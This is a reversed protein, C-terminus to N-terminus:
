NPYFSLGCYRLVGPKMRYVQKGTHGIDVHAGNESTVIKPQRWEIYIYAEQGNQISIKDEYTKGPHANARNRMAKEIMTRLKPLLDNGEDDSIASIGGHMTVTMNEGPKLELGNPLPMISSNPVETGNLYLQMVPCGFLYCRVEVKRIEYTEEGLNSLVVSAQSRFLQGNTNGVRLISNVDVDKMYEIENTDFRYGDDFRNTGHMVDLADLLEEQQEELRALEDQAKKLGLYALGTGILGVVAM